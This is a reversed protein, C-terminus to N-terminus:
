IEAVCLSLMAKLVLKTSMSSNIKPLDALEKDDELKHFIKKEKEGSIFYHQPM